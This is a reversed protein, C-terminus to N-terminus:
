LWRLSSTGISLVSVKRTASVASAWPATQFSLSSAQALSAQAPKKSEGAFKGLNKMVSQRTPVPIELGKPTKQTPKPRDSDSRSSMRTSIM